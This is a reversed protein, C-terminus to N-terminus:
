YKPIIRELNKTAWLAAQRRNPVKIKQFINYLHSKVTHPSIYLKEAIEENTAWTAVLALIEVERPTLSSVQQKDPYERGKAELICKTVIKRSLWLEGEIIARLGKRVSDLPDQEYFLGRVGKWVLKDEFGLDRAVHILVLRVRSLEEEGTLDLEVLLGEPDKGQCDWLILEVKDDPTDNASVSIQGINECILCKAGFERELYYSVLENQLRRPGVIHFIRAAMLSECKRSKTSETNM